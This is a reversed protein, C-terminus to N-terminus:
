GVLAAVAEACGWSLTVGARGHGYDHIIHGNPRAELELRITEPNENIVRCPRLGALSAIREEALRDIDRVGAARLLTGCREIIADIAERSCTMEFENKEFTGGLVVYDEFPFVYTTIAGRSEEVLCEKLKLTNAVRLIQGRYPTVAADNALQAAGVGSCNVVIDFGREFLEDLADLRASEITGGLRETFDRVLWPMYIRMNMKPMVARVADAYPEPAIKVREFEDVLTAWWPDVDLPTFFFETVPSLSVGCEPRENILHRYRVYSAQTWDYAEARGDVRFPSFVAGARDSTIDPSQHEAVVTM